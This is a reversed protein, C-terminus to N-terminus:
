IPWSYQNGLLCRLLDGEGAMSEREEEMREDVLAFVFAIKFRDHYYCRPINCKSFNIENLHKRISDEWDKFFYGLQKEYNWLLIRIALSVVWDRLASTEPINKYIYEM